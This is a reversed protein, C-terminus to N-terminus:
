RLMADYHKEYLFRKDEPKLSEFRCIVAVRANEVLVAIVICRATIVRIGARFEFVYEQRETLSITSLECGLCVFVDSIYLIDIPPVRGLVSGVDKKSYQALFSAATLYVLQFECKQAYDEIRTQGFYSRDISM